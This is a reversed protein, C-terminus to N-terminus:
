DFHMMRDMFAARALTTPKEIVNPSCAWAVGLTTPKEIVNPGHAQAVGLATPKEIVNPGHAQAVGLTTPKECVYLFFAVSTGRLPRYRDSCGYIVIQRSM